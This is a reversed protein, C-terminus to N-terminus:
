QLQKWRTLAWKAVLLAAEGTATDGRELLVFVDNSAADASEIRFGERLLQELRGSATTHEWVDANRVLITNGAFVWLAGGPGRIMTSGFPIRIPSALERWNEGSDRSELIVLGPRSSIPTTEALVYATAADTFVPLSVVSLRIGQPLASRIWSQGDTTSRWLELPLTDAPAGLLWGQTGGTLEVQGGFPLTRTWTAAVATWHIGDSTALLVGPSSSMGHDPSLLIWAHRAGMASVDVYCPCRAIHLRVVHDPKGTADIEEVIVEQDAAPSVAVWADNRSAAWDWSFTHRSLAMVVEWSSGGDDTHFLRQPSSAWGMSPTLMDVAGIRGIGSFLRAPGGSADAALPTMWACLCVICLLGLGYARVM